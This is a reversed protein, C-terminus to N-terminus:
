QVESAHVSNQKSMIKTASAFPELIGVILKMQSLEATSPLILDLGLHAVTMKIANKHILYRKLM